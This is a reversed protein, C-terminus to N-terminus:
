LGSKYVVRMQTEEDTYKDYYEKLHQYTQYDNCNIDVMELNCDKDGYQINADLINKVTALAHEPSSLFKISHLEHYGGNNDKAQNYTTVEINNAM